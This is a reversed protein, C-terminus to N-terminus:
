QMTKNEILARIVFDNQETKKGRGHFFTNIFFDSNIGAFLFFKKKRMKVIKTQRKFSWPATM